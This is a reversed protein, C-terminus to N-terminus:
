QFPNAADVCDASDFTSAGTKCNFYYVKKSTKSWNITWPAIFLVNKGYFFVCFPTYAAIRYKGKVIKFILLGKCIILNSDSDREFM